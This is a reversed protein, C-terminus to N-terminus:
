VPVNSSGKKDGMRFLGVGSAAAGFGATSAAVVAALGVLDLPHDPLLLMRLFLAACSFPIVGLVIGLVVYLGLYGPDVSGDEGTIASRFISQKVQHSGTAM